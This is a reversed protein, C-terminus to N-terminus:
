NCSLCVYINRLSADQYEGEAGDAVHDVTKHGHAPQLLAHPTLTAAVHVGANSLAMHLAVKSLTVAPLIIKTIEPSTRIM